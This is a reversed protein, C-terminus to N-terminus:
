RRCANGAEFLALQVEETGIYNVLFDNAALKNESKASVFFGKVGVFPSAAEGSPARSRTSPSTSAATSRRASTGRAPSGSPRRAPSSSRRPSRATSTAHQCRAPPVRRASGTPSSSAARTQRASARGPRLQRRRETGFVPAGFSPRSRTCTTRTAREAGQEVVFPRRSAPPRHGERDHRRLEDAAEPVLDANRLLAINEIAYPLMYVKGDYTSAQLAVRCTAARRQRRARDARRCRQDVLEGLWDHAGM